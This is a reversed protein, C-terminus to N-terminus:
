KFDALRGNGSNGGNKSMFKAKMEDGSVQKVHSSQHLEPQANQDVDYFTQLDINVGTVFKEKVAKNAYRSKLQKWLIQGISDLEETRILGWMGDVTQAIAVSEALDEMGVETASMGGRNFQAASWMVVNLEVALARLEEAVAKYYFYSSTNGYKMRSSATITLYDVMIVDPIFNQKLKLEDVVHRFHTATATGPPFEKVKLRGYSKQRLVEIRNLFKEKGMTVLENVPTKLRNADARMMIMEERMENSFYLVNLGRATYGCALDILSMTKGVNVGAVLVNLTKRPVGGCTVENLIDIHFPIKSEPNAYFDYRSAADDFFDMGVKSDFCVSIATKLIDPIAHSTLEKDEGQYISIAKQIALYISKDQCFFETTEVLWENNKSPEMAWLEDIILLATDTQDESLTQDNRITISIDTKSPVSNYKNLYNQIVLYLKKEIRDEFYEDKIFPAVKRAYSENRALSSLILKENTIETM